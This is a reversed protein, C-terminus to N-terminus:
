AVAGMQDFGAIIDHGNDGPKAAAMDHGREARREVAKFWPRGAGFCKRRRPALHDFKEVCYWRRNVFDDPSALERRWSHQRNQELSLQRAGDSAVRAVHNGASERRPGAGLTARWGAGSALDSM